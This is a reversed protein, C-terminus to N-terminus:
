FYVTEHHAGNEDTRQAVAGADPERPSFRSPLRYKHTETLGYAGKVIAEVSSTVYKGNRDMVQQHRGSTKARVKFMTGLTEEGYGNFTRPTVEVEDRFLEGLDELISEM